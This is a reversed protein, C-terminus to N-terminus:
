DKAEGPRVRGAEVGEVVGKAVAKSVTEVAGKTEEAVYKVADTAVPAVEGAAYRVVAGMFGYMCLVTGVFMLPLGIFVLWFHRPPEMGSSFLEAAGVIVCILGVLFVVPGAIRLGNRISTQAPQQLQKLEPSVPLQLDNTKM